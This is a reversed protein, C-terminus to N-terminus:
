VWARLATGSGAVGDDAKLGRHQAGRAMRSGRVDDVRVTGLGAIGDDELLEHHQRRAVDWLGRHQRVRVM